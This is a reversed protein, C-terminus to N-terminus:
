MIEADAAITKEHTAAIYIGTLIFLGGVIQYWALAEKFIFFALLSAGVSEGLVSVSVIPAKVYKLAWNLSAHGVIGPGAAQLLFLWWDMRPYGILRLTFLKCGILLVVAAAGAALATYTWVDVRARVKRGILFYGAVFLGSLLALMDGMLKGSQLDGQVILLSGVLATLIGGTVWRNVREKLLLASLVLVFIVQLNTFLVSSSISTYSLSTIWFGLHLALFIGSIIIYGLDRRSLQKIGAPATSDLASAIGATFIVRYLSIVLAPATCYRIIISSTSMCVVSFFIALYIPTKNM